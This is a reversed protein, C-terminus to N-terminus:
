KNAGAGTTNVFASGACNNLPPCLSGHNQSYVTSSAALTLLKYGGYKGNARFANISPFVCNTNVSDLPNFDKHIDGSDLTPVMFITHMNSYSIPLKNLEGYSRDKKLNQYRAYYIRLGLKLPKASPCTKQKALRELKSIFQKVVALDFWISRADDQLRRSTDLVKQATHNYNNFISDLTTLNLPQLISDRATDETEKPAENKIQQSANSKDESVVPKTDCASFGIVASCVIAIIIITKKM